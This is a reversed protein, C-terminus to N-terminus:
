FVRLIDTFSVKVCHTARSSVRVVEKVTVWSEKLVTVLGMSGRLDLLVWLRLGLFVELVLM